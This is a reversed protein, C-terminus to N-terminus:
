SAQIGAPGAPDSSVPPSSGDLALAWFRYDTGATLGEVRVPPLAVNPGSPIPDGVMEAAAFPTAAGEAMYISTAANTPSPSSTVRIEIVGSAPLSLTIAQPPAPAPPDTAAITHLVTATYPGPTGLGSVARAQVEIQAGKDALGYAGILVSGASAPASASSWATAGARRYHVGFTAINLGEGPAAQILVVVPYPMEATAQESARRGSVVDLIVPPMPVGGPIQAEAGARGSWPPPEEADVLAEIEPAHPILTVRAGLNEMAEISKVTCSLGVRTAPGFIYLDGPTPVDGVGFLALTGTQGPRATVSRLLSSGDPRRFRCAYSQGAEVTVPEDLHVLGGGVRVVRGAAQTRDIVDHMAEVRDGRGYAIQETRQNTTFTDARLELEYQRRRVERWIMDPDTVGRMGGLKQILKPTGSFGPWPVVREAPKYGNTEDLFAVRFADPFRAYTREGRWGWSNRPTIHASVIDLARDIVVGWGSSGNRPSARGAAAVEALLEATSAEEIVYRNYTLRKLVCYAHWDKLAADVEDEEVPYAIAPGTLLWRFLSAPNNTERRTWAGSGADWDPCISTFVGNLEDLVGNLQGTSRIDCAALALPAEFAIPYEPRYSRIATWVSRGFRRVDKKSQDTDDWDVTIRTPEIEYRGREPFTIDMTRTIPSNKTSTVSLNGASVWAEDGTGAPRYRVAIVVTFPRPAGEKDVAYVGGPFTIDISASTVDLATTRVQPGGTPSAASKLEVTLPAQIITNPTLTLREDGAYGQRSEFSVEGFREIPTEGIRWDRMAVPGYGVVFAATCYTLDGVARTVPLMAFPPPARVTGLVLPVVGDPMAQNKLGQIAYTPKAKNGANAPILANLLLSGALATGATIGAQLLGVGVASTIGLSGALLPAYFQGLAVAGITVAINLVTRLGEDGPVAQALIQVGAKPRVSAVLGPLIVHEGITIRLRKLLADPAEPLMARIMAEITLGPGFRGVRRGFLPDLCSPQLVLVVDSAM